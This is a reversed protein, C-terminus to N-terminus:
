ASFRGPVFHRHQWALNSVPYDSRFHSGRSEPRNLAASTILRAVQLMNHLEFDEAGAQLELLTRSAEELKHGDRIIGVKSWMTDQLATLRPDGPDLAKAGPFEAPQPLPRAHELRALVLAVRRGFVLGELLSNSALRNAGHVGTAATEGCALLGRINTQGWSDTKIGGIMFHAAPTVPIPQHLPDINYGVLTRYINPFRRAFKAGLATADLFVERGESQEQVIARSVVDRPALDAMPHYAPMFKAGQSNVLVAGEGRVAESILFLPNSGRDLATPHFQIFELDTLEAGARWALALGDGTSPSSNTTRGFIQGCGGAALVVGRSSFHTIEGQFEALVGTCCGQNLSLELAYTHPLLSIGATQQLKQYLTRWIEAGTNDGHHLVRALSHAGERALALEGTETFDFQVGWELLTQIAQPAEGTLLRVADPRCAGAGASLTDSLHLEPSDNKGVAAAVGGQALATNCNHAQDKTIIIVEGHQAAWLAATLGAIGAGVIVFDTEIVRM